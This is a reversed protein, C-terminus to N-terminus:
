AVTVSVSVVLVSRVGDLMTARAVLRKSPALPKSSDMEATDAANALVAGAPRVVYPDRRELTRSRVWRSESASAVHEQREGRLGREFSWAERLAHPRCSSLTKALLMLAM